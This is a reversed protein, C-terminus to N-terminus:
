ELDPFATRQVFRRLRADRALLRLAVAGASLLLHEVELRESVDGCLGEHLVAPGQVGSVGLVVKKLLLNGFVQTHLRELTPVRVDLTAVNVM